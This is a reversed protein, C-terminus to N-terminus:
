RVTTYYKSYNCADALSESTGAMYMV